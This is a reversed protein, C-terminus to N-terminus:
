GRVWRGSTTGAATTVRIIYMGSKISETNLVTKNSALVTTRLVVKGTLDLIEVTAEPADNWEVTLQDTGPNPYTKFNVANLTQTSTYFTTGGNAKYRALWEQYYQNSIQASHVVVTNEDNTTNAASSWNHSGTLVIPDSSIDNQDVIMYKHHFIGNGNYKFVRTAMVPSANRLAAFPASASASTDDVIGGVFAGANLRYIMETTLATRTIQMVAFEIDKGAGRIEDKIRNEVDDSPSFYSEVMTGGINYLHPTNDSKNAGFKAASANPTTTESGFMENFELRYGRAISQDHFVIVNNCDLNIQQDTWNTSGTWLVADAAYDADIVVFKNHMIGVGNPRRVVGIRTDLSGLGLSATSGCNVIRVAVGRNYAANVAATIDSLNSNNWNYIAIDLTYKARNIYNILTDDIARNLFVATNGPTAVTGDVPNNFFTRITGPSTSATAMVRQSSWSTDGNNDVSAGKVYYITGPTLSQLRALHNTDLTSVVVPTSTMAPTTGYYIVTNGRLQTKFFVDFSTTQINQQIIDTTFIPGGNFLLDNLDRFLLQYGTAPNSVSFQSMIGVVALHGSPIPTGVLNTGNTVRGQKSVTGDTINYNTNGSFTGTTSFNVNTFRVLMSEYAEVFGATLSVNAPAPLPNGSSVKTFTTVPSMELLNNYSVLTGTAVVSDGRLITSLNTGYIALGGTGDQIYRIAGLEPGNLAIGAVTVTAGAGSARASSISVPTQANALIGALMMGAILLFKKM